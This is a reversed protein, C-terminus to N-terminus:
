EILVCATTLPATGDTGGVVLWSGDHLRTVAHAGTPAAPAAPLGPNLGLARRATYATGDHRGVGATATLNPYSGILGGVLLATGDAATVQVHNTRGQPLSGVLAWTSGNWRECRDTANVTGILTNSVSGGTVLVDGGPLVGAAHFGREQLLSGTASFAGSTPSWLTVTNSYLPVPTGFLSTTGGRIGGVILVRGDALLTQTHGSRKHVMSGPVATWSGTAPDYVEGTAQASNMVAVFSNIPDVYTALGGTVLVRGDALLTAGHGVRPATMAGTPSFTNTAPDYLECGATVNGASDAGGCVLVRGTALRVARHLTRAVAMAPGPSFSRTLPTFIETTSSAQPQLVTGGGGGAILVRTEDDRPGAGLATATHLARASALAGAARSADGYEWQLRVTKSVSIGGPELAAANAYLPIFGFLVPDNAVPAQFGASAQGDLVYLVFAFIPSGLSLGVNGVLPHFGPGIGDSMSLLALGGALGPSGLRVTLTGGLVAPTHEIWANGIGNGHWVTQAPLMACSVTLLLPLRLM